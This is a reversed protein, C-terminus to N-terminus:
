KNKEKRRHNQLPITNLHIPPLMNFQEYTNMYVLTASRKDLIMKNNVEAMADTLPLILPRKTFDAFFTEIDIIGLSNREVFNPNDYSTSYLKPNKEALDSRSKKITGSLTYLYQDCLIM